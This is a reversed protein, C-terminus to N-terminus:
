ITSSDIVYRYRAEKNVVSKWADSVKSADILQIQPYIKNEACYNMVDQTEAISGILSGNINVRNRIMVFNNVTLKGGIPMGVQTFQHYPKALSAYSAVEFDYPITSIVYDMMGNYPALKSLNDVVIVEKAGFAKIDDVKSPSTTFAYVEAGKSAALKVAIHGLGGIGAVAVKDGAKFDAKILPSYTTVGACLLPAAHQLDIGDPIHIAFHDRVVLNNTYGGQTIGSPSTADPYGYTWVTQGRDCLHEEGRTCSACEMCSDVMCGVGAKDGVKFKTVNKGIATVIGAIEHGPVQPYKQPGWHGMEQHIDSHCIGSFKVEILVDNDGLARREFEWQRLEGSEDFAALGRSKISKNLEEASVSSSQLAARGALAVGATALVTKKLFDRRGTAKNEEM